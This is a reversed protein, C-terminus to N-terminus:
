RRSRWYHPTECLRLCHRMTRRACPSPRQHLRSRARSPVRNHFMFTSRAQRRSPTGGAPTDLCPMGALIQRDTSHQSPWRREQTRMLGCCVKLGLTRVSKPLLSRRRCINRLWFATTLRVPLRSTTRLEGTLDAGSSPWRGM